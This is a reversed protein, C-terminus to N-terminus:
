LDNRESTEFHEQRATTWVETMPWIKGAECGGVCTFIRAAEIPGTTADRAIM